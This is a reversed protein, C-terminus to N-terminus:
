LGGTLQPFGGSLGPRYLTIISGVAPAAGGDIMNLTVRNMLGPSGMRSLTYLEVVERASFARSYSRVNDIAGDWFRSSAPQNGLMQSFTESGASAMSLMLIGNVYFRLTTGDTTSVLHYWQGAVVDGVTTANGNHASQVYWRSDTRGLLGSGDNNSTAFHFGASITDPKVWAAITTQAFTGPVAPFQVFDSTGNFSLQGLGGPRTTGRWAGPSMSLTGHYLSALDYFTRGGALEPLVTYATILGHNLPHQRNIPNSVDILSNMDISTLM